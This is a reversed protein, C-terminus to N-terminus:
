SEVASLCADMVEDLVRELRYREVRERGRQGMARAQARDAMLARVAAAFAEEDDLPFLRGTVGDEVLDANGKVDSAVVPLACLMAEMLNFPLGESRSASVAADAGSLLYGLDTVFGPFHVREAVGLEVALAKTEELLAGQGPLVLKAQNPLKQMARILFMQNKRPSFEASYVMVFPEEPSPLRGPEVGAFREDAVGMGPIWRQPTGPFHRRTWDQDWANMTLILDTQPLMLREATELVLNKVRGAHPGFLYGHVVNVTKPHPSVGVEALRTFFSALATHTIVLDYRERRMWRRLIRVTRLNAASAYRKELPLPILRDAGPVEGVEGGCAVHVEWGLEQFRKLYPLHFSRIHGFSSATMLLKSM